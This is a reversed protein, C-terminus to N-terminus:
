APQVRVCLQVSSPWDTLRVYSRCTAYPYYCRTITKLEDHQTTTKSADAKSRRKFNVLSVNFIRSARKAGATDASVSGQEVPALARFCSRMRAAIEFGKWFGNQRRLREALSKPELKQPWSVIIGIMELKLNGADALARSLGFSYEAGGNKM